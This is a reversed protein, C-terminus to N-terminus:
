KLFHFLLTFTNCFCCLTWCVICMVLIGPLRAVGTECNDVCGTLLDCDCCLVSPGPEVEWNMRKSRHLGLGRPMEFYSVFVIFLLAFEASSGWVALLFTVPHHQERIDSVFVSM